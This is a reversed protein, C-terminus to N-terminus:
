DADLSAAAKDAATVLTEQLQRQGLGSEQLLAKIGLAGLALGPAIIAIGFVFLLRRGAGMRHFPQFSVSM